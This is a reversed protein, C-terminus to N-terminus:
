IEDEVYRWKLKEGTIPHKGASSRGSRCCRQIYVVNSNM